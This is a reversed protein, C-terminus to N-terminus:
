KFPKSSAFCFNISEFGYKFNSSFGKIIACSYSVLFEINTNVLVNEGITGYRPFIIDNLEPKIKKSLQEFDEKSIQKANEFDIEKKKAFNQTAIYPYGKEVAKPMKHDIDGIKKSVEDFRVWKWLSPISFPKEDDEIPKLASYFKDVENKVKDKIWKETKDKFKERIENEIYLTREIKIKELLEDTTELNTQKERWEKTLEGEFASKLVSQRYRKLQKELHLLYKDSNDLNSFLKEIKAVIRKQENLPPVKILSKELFQFHRAYGKDPLKIMKIFYYFAKPYFMELPKLIKTGDAGAIFDFNVYKIIKTHDGFIIHPYSSANIALDKKNSYGGIFSIGQDIVPIEGDSISYEKQLLKKNTTSINEKVDKFPIEIWGTPLENKVELEENKM